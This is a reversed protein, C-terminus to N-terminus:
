SLCLKRAETKSLVKIIRNVTYPIDFSTSNWGSLIDADQVFDIFCELMTKEDKCIIVEPMDQFMLEATEMSMTKPPVAFVVMTDSWQQYAGISTIPMFAEDPSSYGREKCFDTEIDFFVVNLKPAEADQYHESLHAYVPNLDSEFLKRGDPVLKLEKRFAKNSNCTVKTLHTGYISTFKGNPDEYFFTYKVQSDKFVRKGDKHREVVYIKDHDRDFFADVYSM